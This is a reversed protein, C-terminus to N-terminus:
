AVKSDVIRVTSRWTRKNEVVYKIHRFIGIPMYITDRKFAAFIEGINERDSRFQGTITFNDCQAYPILPEVADELEACRNKYYELQEREFDNLPTTM